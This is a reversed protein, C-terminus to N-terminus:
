GSSSQATATTSTSRARCVLWWCPETYQDTVAEAVETGGGDFGM